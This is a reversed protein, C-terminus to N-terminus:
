HDKRAHISVLEARIAEVLGRRRMVVASQIAGRVMAAQARGHGVIAIGDVGLIPGGMTDMVTMKHRLDLAIRNADAPPLYNLLQTRLDESAIEGLGEVTKLMVNGVFGDCLVVNAKGQIVEHAEINGIFRLGSAKLLQHAERVQKSGKTEEAGVNLLAVTPDEVGAYSRAVAIGIAAFELFQAPRAEVNVGLDVTIVKPTYGLFPGGLVPRELGELPGFIFFAAAMTAGTSGCSVVADALGAKVLGTAVAVSANPRRRLALAPHESEEIPGDSAVVTIPLGTTDHKALEANVVDPPGVLIVPIGAERAAEVAGAVIEGPAHDGGM